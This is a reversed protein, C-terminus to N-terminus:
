KTIAYIAYIIGTPVGIDDAASLDLVRCPLRIQSLSGSSASTHGVLHGRLKSHGGENDSFHHHSKFFLSSLGLSGVCLLLSLSHIFNALFFCDLLHLHLNLIIGM